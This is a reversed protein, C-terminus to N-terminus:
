TKNTPNKLLLHGKAKLKGNLISQKQEEAERQLRQHREVAFDMEKVCQLIKEQLINLVHYPINAM